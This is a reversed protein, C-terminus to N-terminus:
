DELKIILYGARKIVRQCLRVFKAKTLAGKLSNVHKDVWAVNDLSDRGGLARPKIHDVSANVGIKIKVDSYACKNKQRKLLLELHPALSVDGLNNRAAARFYCRKCRSITKLRRRSQCDVCVGLRKLEYGKYKKTM